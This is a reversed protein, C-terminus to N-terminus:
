GELPQKHKFLVGAARGLRSLASLVLVTLSIPIVSKILWRGPLGLPSESREGLRWATGVFDLSYYFIVCILPLLLIVIGLMEVWEKTRPSLRQHLLDLRIHGDDILTYSIGFMILVAYFHWQLEELWILGRGFVYRLVVQVMINLILLVNLWAILRGLREVFSDIFRCFRPQDQFHDNM